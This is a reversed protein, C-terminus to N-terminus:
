PKLMHKGSKITHQTVKLKGKEAQKYVIHPIYFLVAQLFLVFPVWQYYAKVEVEDQHPVYPGVGTQSVTNGLDAFIFLYKKLMKPVIISHVIGKAHDVYHRPVSFTGMIYCYSDIVNDPIPGTHLCNIISDTGSIWETTTVLITFCIILM